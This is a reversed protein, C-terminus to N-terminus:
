RLWVAEEPVGTQDLTSFQYGTVIMGRDASYIVLLQSAPEAGLRHAPIVRATPTITAAISGGRRPFVALRARPDRIARALDALYQEGSTGDPWQQEIAVRKVLHYTLSDARTGLVLDGYRAGREKVPVRVTSGGFPATAIREVIRAVEAGTAQRGTRILERILRDVPHGSLGPEGV